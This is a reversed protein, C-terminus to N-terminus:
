VKEVELFSHARDGKAASENPGESYYTKGNLQITEM